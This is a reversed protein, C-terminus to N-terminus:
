RNREQLLSQLQFLIEPISKSEAQAFAARLLSETLREHRAHFAALVEMEQASLGSLGGKRGLLRAFRTAFGTLSWVNRQRASHYDIGAARQQQQRQEYEERLADLYHPTIPEAPNPQAPQPQPHAGKERQYRKGVGLYQGSPSYLQVEDLVSFPDYQVIVEDGRLKPDVAFLLNDVRVDSHDQDVTRKVREHFFSLVTSLDVQRTLRSEEHFREHPTQGTEGHVQQHYEVELWALLVRNLEDLTLMQSARIEAELQSQVTQIFREILGGAAPDRPPRHLLKINLETCALKLRKAHYVKANDVYAELSAGHQGWARLLSDVLIDFNERLYYRATVIYRSHCDIWVSLHTKL